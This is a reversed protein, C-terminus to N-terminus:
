GLLIAAVGLILLKDRDDAVTCCHGLNGELLLEVLDIKKQRNM